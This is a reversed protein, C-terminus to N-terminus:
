IGSKFQKATNSISISCGKQRHKLVGFLLPDFQYNQIVKQSLLNWIWQRPGEFTAEWIRWRINGLFLGGFHLYVLLITHFTCMETKTSMQFIKFGSLSELYRTFLQSIKIQVVEGTSRNLDPCERQDPLYKWKSVLVRYLTWLNHDAFNINRILITGNGFQEPWSIMWIGQNQFKRDSIVRVRWAFKTNDHQIAAHCYKM